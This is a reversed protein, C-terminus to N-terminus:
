AASKGRAPRLCVDDACRGTLRLRNKAWLEYALELGHRIGWAKSLTVSREFGIRSYMQRFVEVGKILQGDPLRAHIEAMLEALSVGVEEPSFNESAIDVFHIARVTDKGRIMNVEKTCLPCDGDFYVQLRMEESASNAM